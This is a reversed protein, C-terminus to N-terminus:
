KYQVKNKLSQKIKVLNFKIKQVVILYIFEQNNQELTRQAVQITTHMIFMFIPGMMPHDLSYLNNILYIFLIVFADTTTFDRSM